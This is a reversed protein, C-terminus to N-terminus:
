DDQTFSDVPNALRLLYLHHINLFNETFRDSYAGLAEYKLEAQELKQMFLASDTASLSDHLQALAFQYDSTKGILEKNNNFYFNHLLTDTSLLSTDARLRNFLKQQALRNGNEAYGDEMYHEGNGGAILASWSANFHFQLWNCTYSSISSSTDILQPQVRFQPAYVGNLFAGSTDPYQVNSTNSAGTYYFVPPRYVSDVPINIISMTRFNSDNDFTHYAGSGLFENEHRQATNISLSDYGQDGLVQAFGSSRLVMAFKSKGYTNKRVNMGNCDSAFFSAYGLSDAANSCFEGTSGYFVYGAKRYASQGTCGSAFEDCYQSGNGTATNLTVNLNACNSAYIGAQRGLVATTNSQHLTNFFVQTGNANNLAIGNRGGFIHNGQISSHLPIANDIETEYIGYTNAFANFPPATQLGIAALTPENVTITNNWVWQWASANNNLTIGSNTNTLYNDSAWVKTHGNLIQISHAVSDMRNRSANVKLRNAFIGIDCNKFRPTTTDAPLTTQTQVQLAQLQTFGGIPMSSAWVAAGAGLGATNEYNRINSFYNDYINVKGCFMSAIGHNMNSFTNPQSGAINTNPINIEPTCLWLAIGTLPRNSSDTGAPFPRMQPYGGMGFHCGTINYATSDTPTFGLLRISNQNRSFDTHRAFLTSGAGYVTIGNIADEIKSRKGGATDTIVSGGPEIYIGDWMAQCGHLYSGAITLTNGAEVEIRANAALVLECNTLTLPTNITLTVSDAVYVFSSTPISLSTTNTNSTIQIVNPVSGQVSFCCTALTNVNITATCTTSPDTVQSVTVSYEGPTIGTLDQTVAANSWLYTYPFTGVPLGGEVELDISTADCTLLLM